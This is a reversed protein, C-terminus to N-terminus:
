RSAKNSLNHIVFPLAFRLDDLVAIPAPEAKEAQSRRTAGTLVIACPMNAAAAAQLDSILSDGIFLCRDPNLGCSEAAAM